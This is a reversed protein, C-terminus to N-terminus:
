KTSFCNIEVSRVFPEENNSSKRLLLESFVKVTCFYGETKLFYWFFFSHFDDIITKDKWHNCAWPFVKRFGHATTRARIRPLTQEAMTEWASLRHFLLGKL